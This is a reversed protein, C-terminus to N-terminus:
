TKSEIISPGALGQLKLFLLMAEAEAACSFTLNKLDSVLPNKLTMGVWHSDEGDNERSIRSVDRWPIFKKENVYDGAVKPVYSYRIDVGEASATASDLRFHSSVMMVCIHYALFLEVFGWFIWGNWGDEAGPSSPPVVALLTESWHLCAIAVCVFILSLLLIRMAWGSNEPKAAPNGWSLSKETISVKTKM